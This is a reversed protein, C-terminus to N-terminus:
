GNLMEIVFSSVCNDHTGKDCELNFDAYSNNKNYNRIENITTPTLVFSYKANGFSNSSPKDYIYNKVVINSDDGVCYNGNSNIFSELLCNDAKSLSLCNEVYNVGDGNFDAELNGAKFYDENLDNEDIVGDHNLDGVIYKGDVSYMGIKNIECWNSGVLRKSDGSVGPFPNNTDIIRFNLNFKKDYTCIGDYCIDIIENQVDYLCKVSKKEGFLNVSLTAEKNTSTKEDYSIPLGNGITVYDDDDYDDADYIVGDLGKSILKKEYNIDINDVTSSWSTYCMKNICEVSDPNLNDVSIDNIFMTKSLEKQSKWQISFSSNSFIDKLIYNVNISDNNIIVNKLQIDTLDSDENNSLKECNLEIKMTGIKSYEDLTMWLLQGAKVKEKRFPLKYSIKYSCYADLDEYYYSGINDNKDYYCVRNNKGLIETQLIGSTCSFNSGSGSDCNVIDCSTNSLDLNSGDFDYNKLNNYKPFDKYLEDLYVMKEIDSLSNNNRIGDLADSCKYSKFRTTVINSKKTAEGDLQLQATNRIVKDEINYSSINSSNCLGSCINNNIKTKIRFRYINNYFSEKKLEEEKAYINIKNEADNKVLDFKETVNTNSSDFITIDGIDFSLSKDFADYIDFMSYYWKESLNPVYQEIEYIIEKDFLFNDVQIESLKVKSESGDDNTVIIYKKPEKTKLKLFGPNSFGTFWGYTKIEIPAKDYVVTIIGANSIDDIIKGLSDGLNNLRPDIVPNYGTPNGNKEYSYKIYGDDNYLHCNVDSRHTVSGNVDSCDATWNKNGFFYVYNSTSNNFNKSKSLYNFDKGSNYYDIFINKISKSSGTVDLHSNSGNDLDYVYISNINKRNIGLVEVDIDTYSIVSPIDYLTSSNHLYYEIRYTANASRDEIGIFNVGIQSKSFSLKVSKNSEKNAKGFDISALTIKMDVIEGNYQGVNKYLIYFKDSSDKYSISTNRYNNYQEKTIITVNSSADYYGYSSDNYNTEVSTVGSIFRPTFSYKENIEEKNTVIVGYPNGNSIAEIRNNNILFLVIAFIIFGYKKM